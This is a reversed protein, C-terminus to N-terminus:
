LVFDRAFITTVGLLDISFDAVGDGNTDGSLTLTSGAVSFRLEGARNTFAASGIFNLAQDGALATNADIASFDIRDNQVDSFDVIRDRLAGIAIDGPAFAFKDAGAGGTVLDAGAAGILTDNGGDGILTDSGAGGTIVNAFSNGAGSFNGAGAYVLNEVNTGLTYSALTTQVTDLGGRSSAEIVVDGSNDVLYRDNGSDGRLTDGGLGGDLTDNGTSGTMVNGLENGTGTFNSPGTHILNEVNAALAYTSLGTVVTDAGASGAERVITSASAVVYRDDGGGGALLTTGAGGTLTDDFSSGMVEEVASIVDGAADGGTQATAIGLNVVVAGPSSSYDAVDTGAAGDLTDAGGGGILRDDGGMGSLSDDGARGDLTDHGSSGFLMDAGPGGTHPPPPDPEGGAAVGPDIYTKFIWDFSPLAESSLGYVGGAYGRTTLPIGYPDPLGSIPTFEFTYKNGAVVPVDVIWRVFHFTIRPDSLNLNTNFLVPGGIGEGSYVTLKGLGGPYGGFLPSIEILRGTQGATFSQWASSGETRASTLGDVITPTEQDAHTVIGYDGSAFNKLLVHNDPNADSTLQLDEGVVQATYGGIHLKGDGRDDRAVGGFVVGDLKLTGDQDDITTLGDNLSHLFYTDGGDGGVLLDNGSGGDLKDDQDEGYLFDDGGGGM